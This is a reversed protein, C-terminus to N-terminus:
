NRYDKHAQRLMAQIGLSNEITGTMNLFSRQMDKTAGFLDANIAGPKKSMLVRSNFGDTM